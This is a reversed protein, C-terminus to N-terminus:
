LGAADWLGGAVDEVAAKRTIEVLEAASRADLSAVCSLAGHPCCNHMYHRLACTSRHDMPALWARFHALPVEM